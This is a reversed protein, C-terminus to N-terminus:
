PATRKRVYCSVLRPIDDRPDVIWVSRVQACGAPGKMRCDILYKAGYRNEDVRVADGVDAAVLLQRKLEGADRRTFGLARAFVRAKHKGDDHVESLVYDLLKAPDVIARNGNPM